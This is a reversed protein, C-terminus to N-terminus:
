HDVGTHQHGWAVTLQVSVGSMLGEGKTRIDEQGVAVKDSCEERDKSLGRIEQVNRNIKTAGM